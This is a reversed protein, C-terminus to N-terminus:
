NFNLNGTKVPTMITSVTYNTLLPSLLQVLLVLIQVLSLLGMMQKLAAMSVLIYEKRVHLTLEQNRLIPITLLWIVVHKSSM